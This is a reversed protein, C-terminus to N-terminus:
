SKYEYEILKDTFKDEFSVSYDVRSSFMCVAHTGNDKSFIKSDTLKEHDIYNSNRDFDDRAFCIDIDQYFTYLKCMATLHTYETTYKASKTRFELWDPLIATIMFKFINRYRGSIIDKNDVYSNSAIDFFKIGHIHKLNNYGNILVGTKLNNIQFYPKGNRERKLTVGKINKLAEVYWEYYMDYIPNKKLSDEINDLVSM